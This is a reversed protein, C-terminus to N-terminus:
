VRRFLSLIIKIGFYFILFPIAFLCVGFLIIVIPISGIIALGLAVLIFPITVLFLAGTILYDYIKDVM